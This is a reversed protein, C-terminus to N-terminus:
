KDGLYREVPKEITAKTLADAVANQIGKSSMTAGTVTDTDTDQRSIIRKFMDLAQKWFYDTESQNIETITKITGNEVTVSVTIDDNRGPAIGEYTGDKYRSCLLMKIKAEAAKLTEINAVLQGTESSLAMYAARAMEVADREKLTLAEVEPLANIMDMVVQGANATEEVVLTLEPLAKFYAETVVGNGLNTGPSWENAKEFIRGNKLHYTGPTLASITLTFDEDDNLTSSVTEKGTIDSDYVIQAGGGRYINWEGSIQGIPNEIGSLKITATGNKTIITPITARNKLSKEQGNVTITNEDKFTIPAGNYTYTRDAVYYFREYKNCAFNVDTIVDGTDAVQISSESSPLNTESPASTEPAGIETQI